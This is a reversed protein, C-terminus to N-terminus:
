NSENYLNSYKKSEKENKRKLFNLIRCDDKSIQRSVKKDIIKYEDLKNRMISDIQNDNKINNEIISINKYIKKIVM